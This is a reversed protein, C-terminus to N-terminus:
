NLPIHNDAKGSQYRESLAEYTARIRADLAELDARAAFEMVDPLRKALAAQDM